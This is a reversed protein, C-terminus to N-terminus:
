LNLVIIGGRKVVETIPPINRRKLHLDRIYAGDFSEPDFPPKNLDGLEFRGTETFFPNTSPHKLDFHLVQNPNWIRLLSRDVGSGPYYLSQINYFDRLQSLFELESVEVQTKNKRPRRVFGAKLLIRDPSM